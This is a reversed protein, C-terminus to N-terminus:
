LSLFNVIGRRMSVISKFIVLLLLSILVNEPSGEGGICYALPIGMDRFIEICVKAHGGAGLIVIRETESM